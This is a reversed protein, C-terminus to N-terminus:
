NVLVAWSLITPGITNQRLGMFELIQDLGLAALTMAAPLAMLVRYTDASPPAAFVGIAVVSGWLYGNLLLYNRDRIRLLAIGLGALFLVSALM